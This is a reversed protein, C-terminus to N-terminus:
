PVTHIKIMRNLGKKDREIADGPLEVPPVYISNRGIETAAEHGWLETRTPRERAMPKETDRRSNAAAEQRMHEISLEYSPPQPFSKKKRRHSRHLHFLAVGFVIAVVTVGAVIGGVIIGTYNTKPESGANPNASSNVTASSTSTSLSSINSTPTSTPLIVSSSSPPLCGDVSYYVWSSNYGLHRHVFDTHRVHLEYLPTVLLHWVPWCDVCLLLM